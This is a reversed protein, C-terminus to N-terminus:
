EIVEFDMYWTDVHSLYTRWDNPDSLIIDKENVEKVVRALGEYGGFGSRLTRVRDGVIPLNKRNLYRSYENAVKPYNTLVYDEFTQDTM